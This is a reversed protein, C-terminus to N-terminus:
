SQPWGVTRIQHYPRTRLAVDAFQDLVGVL